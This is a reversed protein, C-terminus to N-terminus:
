YQYSLEKLLQDVQKWRPYAQDMLRYFAKSHNFVLLHCLEHVIVADICELPYRVLQTNLTIIGKKSCSGWRRKMKRLAITSDPFGFDELAECWYQHRETFVDMAQQRYWRELAAELSEPSRNRVRLHIFPKDVPQKQFSIQHPEGLFYHEAGEEYKPLVPAPLSSWESQKALIWRQKEVVFEDILAAPMRLPARVEVGGNRHVYIAVSKRKSRVIEYSM